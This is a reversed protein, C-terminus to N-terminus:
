RRACSVDAAEFVATRLEDLAAELRKGMYLRGKPNM